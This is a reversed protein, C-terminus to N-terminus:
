SVRIGSMSGEELKMLGEDPACRCEERRVRRECGVSHPASFRSAHSDSVGLSQRTATVQKGKMRDMHRM